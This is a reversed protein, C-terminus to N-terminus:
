NRAWGDNCIREWGHVLRALPHDRGDLILVGDHSRSETVQQGDDFDLVILQADRHRLLRANWQSLASSTTVVVLLSRADIEPISAASVSCGREPSWTALADLMRRLGVTGPEAVVTRRGAWLEVDAHHAHFQRGISAGVRIVEELSDAARGNQHAQEDVDVILQVPRRGTAQRECVVIRDHRATQAWHVHRLSDGARYPRVALMDGEDGVQRSPTGAVGLFRGRIPPISKLSAMRPWVMLENEVVIRRHAHWIGFPFGSSIRAPETPYLGRRQPHFDWSFVTRSWGPIRALSAAAGAGVSDSEAFFFGREVMLGWVPWPWRNVVAIRVCVPTGETTRHREFSLSCSVGRIGIWPWVVGLVIVAMIAACILLAQSAVSVGIVLAAAAALVFWGIPQKLWYVYRNASPCFDYNLSDTLLQLFQRM